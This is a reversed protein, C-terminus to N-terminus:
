DVIREYKFPDLDRVLQSGSADLRAERSSYKSNVWESDLREKLVWRTCIVVENLQNRHILNDQKEYPSNIDGGLNWLIKKFDEPYKNEYDATFDPIVKQIESESIVVIATM